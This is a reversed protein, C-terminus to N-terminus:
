LNSTRRKAKKSSQTLTKRPQVRFITIDFPTRVSKDAQGRWRGCLGHFGNGGRTM